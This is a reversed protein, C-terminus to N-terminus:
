APVRLTRAEVEQLGGPIESVTDGYVLSHLSSELHVESRDGFISWFQHEGEKGQVHQELFAPWPLSLTELELTEFQTAEM